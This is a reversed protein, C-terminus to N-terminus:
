RNPAIGGVSYLIVCGTTITGFPAAGRRHEASGISIHQLAKSWVVMVRRIPARDLDRYGPRRV